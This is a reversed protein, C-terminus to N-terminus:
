VVTVRNRGLQKSKYLAKDSRDFLTSWDEGQRKSAVGVSVTVPIKRGEFVFETSEITMRIREGIEAATKSATGALILVFEEGGYRAFFDNARILKFSVVKCLEKLVYDGGPHGWNDNIKKFHDLDFTIVSLEETLFDSRKIAEPGKELLAGKSYIGTLGDKQAKEYLSQNTVAEINGRELFKFIINGTKIQDNNKLLCPALPPLSNGNVITRNTSGLDIISVEQGVVVFKAHSRSLSKDDIYVQCEVSRGIVIDNQTIAWQKGQFGSPGILIVIAPPAQDAANLRHRFTDSNIVSTKESFDNKNNSDNTGM